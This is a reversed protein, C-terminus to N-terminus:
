AAIHEQVYAALAAQWSRLTIGIAQGAINHLAAYPPPTSARKFEKSLIPTNVITELGAQRLIENAFEWRSTAGSNVFHYTGYQHTEILQAIAQALDNAYTPNGVEDVVVRVQGTDRARNLIAHIFNRGGPAYLWATRTIYHRPLINRVHFEAAAKSRGYANVPNMTMWEEYGDPRDGAFVENTSVHVMEAGFELCALAVNQTGLGNARYALAPDKACGDVNTYAACHIIVDPKAASVATFLAEKVTIDVEPLDFGTVDHDTLTARLATGLQGRDGTLLVKM